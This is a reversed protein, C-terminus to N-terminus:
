TIWLTSLGQQLSDHQLVHIDYKKLVEGKTEEKSDSLLLFKVPINLESLVKILGTRSEDLALLICILASCEHSVERIMSEVQTINSEYVPEVCALIELINTAGALGRGSTFRYANDGVFM